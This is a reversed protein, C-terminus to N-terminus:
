PVFGPVSASVSGVKNQIEPKKRKSSLSFNAASIKTFAQTKMIHISRKMKVNIKWEASEEEGILAAFEIERGDVCVVAHVIKGVERVEAFQFYKGNISNNSSAFQFHKGVERVWIELDHWPHAVVSRRSLSSLIRENLRPAGRQQDGNENSM